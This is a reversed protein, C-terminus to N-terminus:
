EEEEEEEEDGTQEDESSSYVVRGSLAHHAAIAVRSSPKTGFANRAVIRVARECLAGASLEV